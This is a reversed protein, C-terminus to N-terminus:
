AGIKLFTASVYKFTYALSWISQLPDKSVAMEFLVRFYHRRSNCIIMRASHIGRIRQDAGLTPLVKWVEAEWGFHVITQHARSQPHQVFCPAQYHILAIGDVADRELLKLSQM